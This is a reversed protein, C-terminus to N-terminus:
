YRRVRADRYDIRKRAGAPARERGFILQCRAKPPTDIRTSDAALGTAAKWPPDIAGRRTILGRDVLDLFADILSEPAPPAQGALPGLLLGSLGHVSAWANTAAIERDAAHLVGADLMGVLAQEPLEYPTLGSDGV